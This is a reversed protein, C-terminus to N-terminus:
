QIAKEVVYSALESLIPTLLLGFFGKGSQLLIKRRKESKRKPDALKRIITKHKKLQQLSKKPCDINGVIYNHCIEALLVLVEADVNKLIAIRLKPSADKLVQLLAIHREVGCTM